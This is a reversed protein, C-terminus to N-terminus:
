TKNENSLTEPLTAAFARLAAQDDASVSTKLAANLKQGGLAREWCTRARCLYAGRGALKGTPDVQVTGSTTRVVRILERKGREQRCTICTRLPVHKPRPGKVVQAML